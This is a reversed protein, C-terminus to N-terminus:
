CRVSLVEVNECITKGENGSEAEMRINLGQLLEALVSFRTSVEPFGYTLVLVVKDAEASVQSVVLRRVRIHTM